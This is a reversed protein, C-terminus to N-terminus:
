FIWVSFLQYSDCSSHIIVKINIRSSKYRIKQMQIHLIIDWYNSCMCSIYPYKDDYRELVSQIIM